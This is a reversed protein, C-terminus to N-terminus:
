TASAAFCLLLVAQGGARVQQAADGEQIGGLLDFVQMLAELEAGKVGRSGAAFQRREQARAVELWWAAGHQLLQVKGRTAVEM